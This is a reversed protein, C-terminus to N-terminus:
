LPPLPPIQRHAEAKKAEDSITDAWKKAAPIDEQRLVAVYARVADDYVPTARFQNLWEAPGGLDAEAWRTVLPPINPLLEPQSKAHRALLDAATAPQVAALLQLAALRPRLPCAQGLALIADAAKTIAGADTSLSAEHLLTMSHGQFYADKLVSDATSEMKQQLWALRQDAPILQAQAMVLEPWLGPPLSATLAALAEPSAGSWAQFAASTMVDRFIGPSLKALWQTAPEPEAVAWSALAIEGRCYPPQMLPDDPTFRALVGAKGATGIKKLFGEWAKAPLDSREFVPLVANLLLLANGSTAAAGLDGLGTSLEAVTTSPDQLLEAKALLAASLPEVPSPPSFAPIEVNGTSEGVPTPAVAPSVAKTPRAPLPPAQEKCSCVPLVAFCFLVKVPNLCSKM